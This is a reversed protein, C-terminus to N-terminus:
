RQVGVADIRVKPHGATGLTKIKLTHTKTGSFTKSYLTQRVQTSSAHSDVTKVLAGDVYVKFKGCGACKDGILSFAHAATKLSMTKGASSTDTVTGVFHGSASRQKWGSSYSLSGARDDYPVVTMVATSYGTTSGDPYSATARFLYTSGPTGSLSASRTTPGVTKWHQWPGNVWAGSSSKTRQAYQVTYTLPSGPAGWAVSFTKTSSTKTSLSPASIATTLSLQWTDALNANNAGFGGFLVTAGPTGPLYAMVGTDRKTASAATSTSAWASGTWTWTDQYYARAGNDFGGFLLVRGFRPDFAAHANIRAHPGTTAAQTWDTGNFTWTDGYETTL